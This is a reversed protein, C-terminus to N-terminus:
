GERNRNAATVAARLDAPVPRKGSGDAAIIVYVTQGTVLTVDRRKVEFDFTLSSEGIRSVHAVVEVDTDGWRVSGKWAINVAVVQIDHGSALLAQLPYGVAELYANRADEFYALYWMNFVVGQQDAEFYRVRLPIAVRSGRWVTM